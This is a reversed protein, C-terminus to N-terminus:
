LKTDTPPNMKPLPIPPKAFTTSDKTLRIPQRDPKSVMELAAKLLEKSKDRKITDKAKNPDERM